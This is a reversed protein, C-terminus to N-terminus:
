VFLFAYLMCYSKKVLLFLSPCNRRFRCRVVAEGSSSTVLHKGCGRGNGWFGPARHLYGLGKKTHPFSPKLTSRCAFISTSDDVSYKQFWEFDFVEQSLRFKFKDIAYFVAAFLFVFMLNSPMKRPVVHYSWYFSSKKILNTKCIMLSDLLIRGLWVSRTPLSVEWSTGYLCLRKHHEKQNTMIQTQQKRTSCTCFM